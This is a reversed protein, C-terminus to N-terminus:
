PAKKWAEEAEPTVDMVATIDRLEIRPAPASIKSRGTPGTHALEFIGRTTGWYIAMRAQTLEIQSGTTEEAYGAFVGRHSTTVIVYRM